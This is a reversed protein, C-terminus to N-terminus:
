FICLPPSTISDRDAVLNRRHNTIRETLVPLEADPSINENKVYNALDELADNLGGFEAGRGTFSTFQDFGAHPFFIISSETV